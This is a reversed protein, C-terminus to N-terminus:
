RIGSDCNVTVSVTENVPVQFKDAFCYPLINAAAASRIAYAGPPLDVRFKGLVDSKVSTIVKSQDSTTIVLNTEYPKDKCSDEPPDMVVPCTPGILVTGLITGWSEAISLTQHQRSKYAFLYWGILLIIIPIIFLLFIKRM